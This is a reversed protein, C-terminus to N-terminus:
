KFIGDKEEVQDCLAFVQEFDILPLSPAIGIKTAIRYKCM